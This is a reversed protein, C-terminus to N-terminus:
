GAQAPSGRQRRIKWRRDPPRGANAPNAPNAPDVGDGNGASSPPGEVAAPAPVFLQVLSAGLAAIGFGAMTVLLPPLSLDFFGRLRPVTLILAFTGAM